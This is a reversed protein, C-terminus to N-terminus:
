SLSDALVNYSIIKFDPNESSFTILSRPLIKPAPIKPTYTSRKDFRKDVKISNEFKKFRNKGTYTFYDECSQESIQSGM